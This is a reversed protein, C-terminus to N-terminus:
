EPKCYYFQSYTLDIPGDQLLYSQITTNVAPLDLLKPNPNTDYCICGLQANFASLYALYRKGNVCNCRRTNMNRHIHEPEAYKNSCTCLSYTNVWWNNNEDEFRFYDCVEINSIYETEYIKKFEDLNNTTISDYLKLLVIETESVSIDINNVFSIVRSRPLPM